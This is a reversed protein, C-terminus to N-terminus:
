VDGELINLREELLVNQEYLMAIAECLDTIENNIIPESLTESNKEKHTKLVKVGTLKDKKFTFEYDFAGTINNAIESGDEIIVIEETDDTEINPILENKYISNQFRRKEKKTIKDIIINM